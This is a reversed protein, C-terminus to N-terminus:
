NSRRGRGSARAPNRAIPKFSHASRALLAAAQRAKDARRFFADSVGSAYRSIPFRTRWARRQGRPASRRTAGRPVYFIRSLPQRIHADTRSNLPRRVLMKSPLNATPDDLISGALRPQERCNKVMAVIGARVAEPLRDWAEIVAALEPDNSQQRTERRRVDTHRSATMARNVKRNAPHPRMIRLDPTRTAEGSNGCRVFCVRGLDDPVRIRHRAGEQWVPLPPDPPIM